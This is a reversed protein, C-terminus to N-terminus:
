VRFMGHCMYAGCCTGSNLGNKEDSDVRTTQDQRQFAAIVRCVM